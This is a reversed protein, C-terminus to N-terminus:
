APSISHREPEKKRKNIWIAIFVAFGLFGLTLIGLEFILFFPYIDPYYKLGIDPDFFWFYYNRFWHLLIPAQAGYMLYTLGFVFGSITSTTIKGLGWGIPSLYHVVGFIVSTIVILFWEYASIGKFGHESVTKFGFWKKTKDPYLPTLVFLKLIQGSSAEALQNKGLVFLYLVLFLGIFSLRFSLEEVVPAYTVLLFLHLPNPDEIQPSGTPIGVVNEQFLFILVTSVLLMSSIIPIMVLSNNFLKEVSQSFGKKIAQPFSERLKWAAIFCIVFVVWLFMFVAGANVPYTQFGFFMFLEVPLGYFRNGMAIGDPTFYFLALGLAMTLFFSSVLLVVITTLAAVSIIRFTKGESELTM